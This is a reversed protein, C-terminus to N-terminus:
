SGLLALPATVHARQEVEQREEVVERADAAERQVGSGHRVEEELRLLQEAKLPFHRHFLALRAVRQRGAHQQAEHRADLGDVVDVKRLAGEERLLRGGGRLARVGEELKSVFAEARRQLPLRVVAAGQVVPAERERVPGLPRGGEVLRLREVAAGLSLERGAEHDIGLVPERVVEPCVHERRPGEALRLARRGHGEELLRARAVLRGVAELRALEVDEEVPGVGGHVDGAKFLVVTAARALEAGGAGEVGACHLRAVRARGLAEAVPTHGERPQRPELLSCLRSRQEEVLRLLLEPLTEVARLRSAVRLHVEVPAVQVVVARLQQQVTRVLLRRRPLQQLGALLVDGRELVATRERRAQEDVPALREVQQGKEVLQRVAHAEEVGHVHVQADHHGHEESLHAPGRELRHDGEAAAASRPDHAADHGGEAADGLRCAALREVLCALAQLHNLQDEALSAAAQGGGARLAGCLRRDRRRHRHEQRLHLQRLAVRARLAAEGRAHRRQAVELLEGGEHDVAVAELAGDGELRRRREVRHLHDLAALVLGGGGGALGLGGVVGECAAGAAQCVQGGGGVECGRVRAAQVLRAVQDGQRRRAPQREEHAVDVDVAAALREVEDLLQHGGLQEEASDALGGLRVVRAEAGDLAGPCQARGVAAEAVGVVVHLQGRGARRVM